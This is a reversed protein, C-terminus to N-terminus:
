KTAADVFWSASSSKPMRESVGPQTMELRQATRTFSGTEVLTIFYGFSRQLMKTISQRLDDCRIRFHVLM